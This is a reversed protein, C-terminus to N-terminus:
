RGAAGPGKKIKGDELDKITKDWRDRYSQYRTRVTNARFQAAPTPKFMAQITEMLQDLQKRREIPPRKEVGALFQNYLMHVQEIMPEVQKLLEILKETGGESAKAAAPSSPAVSESDREDERERYRKWSDDDKPTMIKFQLM